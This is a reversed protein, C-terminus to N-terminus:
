DTAAAQPSVQELRGRVSETLFRSCVSCLVTSRNLEATGPRGLLHQSVPLLLTPAYKEDDALRRGIRGPRGADDTWKHGTNRNGSILTDLVMADADADELYGLTVPDHTAWVGILPRAKSGCPSEFSVDREQENVPIRNDAYLQKRIANITTALAAAPVAAGLGLKSGDYRRGAWSVAQDPDTGITDLSVVAVDWSGGPLRTIGHCGARQQAFLERDGAAKKPDILGLIQAPWIPTELGRLFSGFIRAM